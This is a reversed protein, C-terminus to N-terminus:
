FLGPHRESLAAQGRATIRVRTTGKLRGAPPDREALGERLM